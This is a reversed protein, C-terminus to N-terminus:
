DLGLESDITDFYWKRAVSSLPKTVAKSDLGSAIMTDSEELLVDSVIWKIFKGTLSRDITRSSERLYSLGKELRAPTLTEEVFAEISDLKEPEIAVKAKGRRTEAHDPGKTKFWFKSQNWEPHFSSVPRWVIGEGPGTVGLSEGVPCTESIAKTIMDMQLAALSPQNFDIMVDFESFRLTNYIRLPDHFVQTLASDPLWTGNYQVAFAVFMKPLTAVAVGSQVGQGCWEGYIVVPLELQWDLEHKDVIARAIDRFSKAADYSAWKAFGHNDDEPTVIRTRSLMTLRGDPFIMVGANTGDLKVTGRYTLVPLETNTDYLPEGDKGRGVYRTRHQVEQVVNRFQRIKPFFVSM